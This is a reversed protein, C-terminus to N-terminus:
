GTRGIRHIYTEPTEPLDYNVVVDLAKIDLGRAAIDTAVLVTLRGKKFNLLARERHAQSKNSHITEAKIEAKELEQVVKNCSHKTRM